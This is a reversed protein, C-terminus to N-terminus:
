YYKHLAYYSKAAFASVGMTVEHIKLHASKTERIRKCPYPTRTHGYFHGHM